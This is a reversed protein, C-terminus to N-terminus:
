YCLVCESYVKSDNALLLFVKSIMLAPIASDRYVFSREPSGSFRRYMKLPYLNRKVEEKLIPLRAERKNLM